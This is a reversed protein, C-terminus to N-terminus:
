LEKKEKPKESNAEVTDEEEDEDEIKADAEDKDEDKKDFAEKAEKEKESTPKWLKEGFAKAEEYSDTILINDFISGKNVTWLEFGVYALDDYGYVDERYDPNPIQKPKWAGKYDPNDIMVPKWEGKYDPNDILQPEWEGDAEDDWEDPKTANPDPIQKPIDDWGDPKKVTLDEIKEDDVWDDPKKDDPDDFEKNPFDWGSILDGKSKEKFDFYVEYTNDPHLVMTYVHTYENKDAYELKIDDNKVLNKKGDNFILHIRSVDYGCLDPGFMISYDSEGGFLKQDLTSPLLKIYGGGCFSYKHEEHKVSLQVVLDKGRNSFPKPLKASIAHHQMDESTRIGKNVAEDVFWAGASWEWKGMRKKWESQVWRKEWSSDDFTERFYETATSFGLLIFVMWELM